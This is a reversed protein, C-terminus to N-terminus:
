SRLAKARRCQVITNSAVRGSSRQFWNSSTYISKTPEVHQLRGEEDHALLPNSSGDAAVAAKSGAVGPASRPKVSNAGSGKKCISAGIKRWLLHRRTQGRLSAFPGSGFISIVTCCGLRRAGAEVV